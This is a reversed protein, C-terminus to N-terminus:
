KLWFRLYIWYRKYELRGIYDLVDLYGYKACIHIANNNYKDTDMYSFRYSEVFYKILYIDGAEVAYLFATMCLQSTERAMPNCKLHTLRISKSQFVPIDNNLSYIYENRNRNPKYKIDDCYVTNCLSRFVCSISDLLYRYITSQMAKSKTYTNANLNSEATVDTTRGPDTNLSSYEYTFPDNPLVTPVGVSLLDYPSDSFVLDDYQHVIMLPDQEENALSKLVANNNTSVEDVSTDINDRTYLSMVRSDISGYRANRLNPNNNSSSNDNFDLCPCFINCYCWCSQCPSSNGGIPTAQVRPVGTTATVTNTREATNNNPIQNNVFHHNNRSNFQPNSIKTLEKIESRTKKRRLLLRVSELSHSQSCNVRNVASNLLSARTTSDIEDIHGILPDFKKNKSRFCPTSFRHQCLLMLATSGSKIHIVGCDARHYLLLSIIKSDCNLKCALLLPTYDDADLWEMVEKLRLSAATNAEMDIDDVNDVDRSIHCPIPGFKIIYRIILEVCDVNHGMIAYHLACAQNGVLSGQFCLHGCRELLIKSTEYNGHYLSLDLANMSISKVNTMDAVDSGIHINYICRIKLANKLCQRSIRALNALVFILLGPSSHACIHHLESIKTYYNNICDSQQCNQGNMPKYLKYCQHLHILRFQFRVKVKVSDSISVIFHIPVHYSSQSAINNLKSYEIQKLFLHYLPIRATCLPKRNLSNSYLCIVLQSDGYYEFVNFIFSHDDLKKDLITKNTISLSLFTVPLCSSSHPVFLDATEENFTFTCFYNSNSIMNDKFSFTEVIDQLEVYFIWDNCRNQDNNNATMSRSNNMHSSHSIDNNGFAEQLFGSLTMFDAEDNISEM